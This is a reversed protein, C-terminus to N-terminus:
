RPTRWARATGGVTGGNICYFSGDSGDKSSDTTTSCPALLIRGDVEVPTHRDIITGDGLQGQNNSGWCKVKGDTLMACAHYDGFSISTATTIGSVEDVPITRQTMTGDGLQGVSNSGWCIVTNDTLLACSNSDGLSISMATTIGSVEVPTTRVETTGDGLFGYYNNGWCMVKSDTLVACSHYDGLAISTATTIDSVEVPTNSDTITEDGLLGNSNSGWCFVTNDTLLACSHSQGLAISTATTIGDVEVPTTRQTTTEDGLLGNTNPGWCNM